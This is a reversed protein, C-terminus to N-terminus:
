FDIVLYQIGDTFLAIEDIAKEIYVFQWVNTADDDTVFFTENAFQGQQPLFM